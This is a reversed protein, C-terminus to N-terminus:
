PLHELQAALHQNNHIIKRSEGGSLEVVEFWYQNLGKVVEVWGRFSSPKIIFGAGGLNYVRLIDEESESVTLVVVPIGRLDHDTKIEALAERGDKRPMNLDLLILDPKPAPTSRAYRGQHRLYDLLDVGDDVFIMANEQGSELFAEEVLKRDDPDDEATLITIAPSQNTM